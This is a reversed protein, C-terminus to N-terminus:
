GCDIAFAFQFPPSSVTKRDSDEVRGDHKMFFVTGHDVYKAEAVCIISTEFNSIGRWNKTRFVWRPMVSGSISVLQYGVIDHHRSDFCVM